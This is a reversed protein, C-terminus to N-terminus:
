SKWWERYPAKTSLNVPLEESSDKMIEKGVCCDQSPWIGELEIYLTGDNTLTAKAYVRQSQDNRLEIKNFRM